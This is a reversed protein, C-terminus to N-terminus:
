HRCTSCAGSSCSACSSSRSSSRTPRSTKSRAAFGSFAKKMRESGCEDCSHSDESGSRELFETTVGCDECIYEYLPM